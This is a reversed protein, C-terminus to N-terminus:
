AHNSSIRPRHNLHSFSTASIWQERHFFRLCWRMKGQHVVIVALGQKKALKMSESITDSIVAEDSTTLHVGGEYGYADFLKVFDPSGIICGDARVGPGWTENNQLM